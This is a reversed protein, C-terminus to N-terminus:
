GKGAAVSMTVTVAVTVTEASAHGPGRTLVTVMAVGAMPSATGAFM